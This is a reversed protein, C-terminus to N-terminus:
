FSAFEDQEDEHNALVIGSLISAKILAGTKKNHIELLDSYTLNESNEEFYM